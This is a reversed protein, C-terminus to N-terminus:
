STVELTEPLVPSRSSETVRESWRALYARTHPATYSTLHDPDARTHSPPFVERTLRALGQADDVDYWNPLLHIELCLERARELTQSFVRATSWEIDAFLRQHARKLGILYYGGDDAPGVVVRDGPRALTEAADALIAGPLTPSDSDILCLSQYGVALLDEAAHFLREGFGEGRQALLRFSPALLNDFAAEAGLPTYVAVGDTDSRLGVQAINAATDRLFCANLAAAEGPTFPPVLRTKVAGPQPAKIMVALACFAPAPVIKMRPNIIPYASKVPSMM